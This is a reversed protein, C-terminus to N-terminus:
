ELLIAGLSPVLTTDAQRLPREHLVDPGTCM